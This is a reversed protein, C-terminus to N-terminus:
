LNEDYLYSSTGHIYSYKNSKLIYFTVQKRILVSQKERQVEGSISQPPVVQVQGSCRKLPTLKFIEGVLITFQQGQHLKEFSLKEQLLNKGIENWQSKIKYHFCTLINQQRNCVNIRFQWGKTTEPNRRRAPFFIKSLIFKKIRFNISNIQFM